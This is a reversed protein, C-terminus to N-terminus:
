VHRLGLKDLSLEGEEGARGTMRVTRGDGWGPGPSM